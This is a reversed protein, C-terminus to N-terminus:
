RSVVEPAPFLVVENRGPVDPIPLGTTHSSYRDLFEILEMAEPLIAKLHTSQIIMGLDDHPFRFCCVNRNTGHRPPAPREDANDQKRQNRRQSCSSEM